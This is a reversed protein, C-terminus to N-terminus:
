RLEDVYRDTGVQTPVFAGSFRLAGLGSAALEAHHARLRDDALAAPDHELFWLLCLQRGIGQPPAVAKTGQQEIRGQSFPVPTFALVQGAPSTALYAPLHDRLWAELAPLTDADPADVVEVLLGPYAADLALHPQMPGPDRVIGFRYRHFSTYVHERHPNGRGYPMLAKDMAEFSWRETDEEHGATFWYTSIYCGADPPTVLPDAVIARRARLAKPAVWRRGAFTWPGQMAGSYFHDDEYWRNYELEFGPEPEVMTILAGGIRVENPLHLAIETYPDTM